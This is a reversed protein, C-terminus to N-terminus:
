SRHGTWRRGARTTEVLVENSLACVVSAHPARPAFGSNGPEDEFVVQLMSRHGRQPVIDVPIGRGDDTVSVTQTDLLRVSIKTGFGQTVEHAANDLVARLLEIHANNEPVYMFPRARVSESFTSHM